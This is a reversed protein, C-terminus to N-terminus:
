NCSGAQLGCSPRFNNLLLEPIQLQRFARETLGVPGKLFEREKMSHCWKQTHPNWEASASCWILSSCATPRQQTEAVELASPPVDKHHYEYAM